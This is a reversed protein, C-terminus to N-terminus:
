CLSLVKDFARILESDLVVTHPKYDEVSARKMISPPLNAVTALKESMANVMEAVVIPKDEFAYLLECEMNSVPTGTCAATKFLSFLNAEADEVDILRAMKEIRYEEAIRESYVIDVWRSRVSEENPDYSATKEAEVGFIDRVDKNLRETYSQRNPGHVSATKTGEEFIVKPDAVDFDTKEPFVRLFAESNTREILRETQDRNLGLESAKKRVGDNLTVDENIYDAVVEHVALNLSSEDISAM